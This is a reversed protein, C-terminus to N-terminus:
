VFGRQHFKIGTGTVGTNLSDNLQAEICQTEYTNLLLQGKAIAEQTGLATYIQHGVHAALTGKLIRPLDFEFDDVSDLPIEDPLAQYTLSLVEDQVPRQILLVDPYPTFVGYSNSIDNLKLEQGKHNWVSLIKILDGTYPEETSDMIYHHLVSTDEVGRKSFAYKPLMKYETVNMVQEILLTKEKFNFRTYLRALSENIASVVEARGGETISGDEAISLNKLEVLALRTMIEGLQM